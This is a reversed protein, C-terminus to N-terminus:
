LHAPADLFAAAYRVTAAIGLPLVAEDVDFRGNHHEAGSGLEPNRIGLLGLVGPWNQLYLSMSESAFWPPCTCLTGEPLVGPLLAEALAACDCNNIVPSIRIDDMMPAFEASCRQGEATCTVVRRVTELARRGEEQRKYVDIASAATCM